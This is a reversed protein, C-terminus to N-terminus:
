EIGREVAELIPPPDGGLPARRLVISPCLEVLERLSALPLETVFQLAPTSKGRRDIGDHGGGGLSLAPNGAHHEDLPEDAPQARERSAGVHLALEVVLQLKM